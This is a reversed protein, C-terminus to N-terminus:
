RHPPLPLTEGSNTAQYVAPPLNVAPNSHKHHRWAFAALAVILVIGVATIGVIIGLATLLLITSSIRLLLARPM